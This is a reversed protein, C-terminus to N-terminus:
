ALLTKGAYVRAAWRPENTVPSIRVWREDNAKDRTDYVTVTQSYVLGGVAKYEKAPGARVFLSPVVVKLKVPIIVPPNYLGHGYLELAAKDGNFLDHDINQGGLKAVKYQHIVYTVCGKPLTPKVKGWSAIFLPNILAAGGTTVNWYDASTYYALGPAATLQIFRDEFQKLSAM